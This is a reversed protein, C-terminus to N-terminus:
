ASPEEPLKLNDDKVAKGCLGYVYSAVKRAQAADLGHVERMETVIATALEVKDKSNFDKKTMEKEQEITLCRSCIGSMTKYKGCSCKEVM